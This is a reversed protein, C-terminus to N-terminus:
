AQKRQHALLKLAEDLLLPELLPTVFVPHGPNHVFCMSRHESPTNKSVILVFALGPMPFKCTYFGNVREQLPTFTLQEVEGSERVMVWLTAGKPFPEEGLLYRRFREQFPGLDIPVSGDENWGYVSGRWFISAAFYSIEAVSIKPIEAAAYVKTPAGQTQLDPPRASLIERLPFTGDNQLCHRLVWREGGSNLRDECSKCFLHNKLQLSTQVTKTKTILVPHPKEARESRLRKYIGKSLYHSDQLEVGDRLCLKCKGLVAM